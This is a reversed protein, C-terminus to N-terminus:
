FFRILAWDALWMLLMAAPSFGAYFVCIVVLDMWPNFLSFYDDRMAIFYLLLTIALFTTGLQISNIWGLQSSEFPQWSAFDAILHWEFFLNGLVAAILIGGTWLLGFMVIAISEEKLTGGYRSPWVVSCCYRSGTLGAGLLYFVHLLDM